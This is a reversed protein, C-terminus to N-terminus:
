CTMKYSKWNGNQCINTPVVVPSETCADDDYITLTCLNDTSIMSGIPDVFQYCINSQSLELTYVGQNEASCGEVGFTRFDLEHPDQRASVGAAPAAFATQAFALAAVTIASTSFYM